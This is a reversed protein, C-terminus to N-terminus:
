GPFKYVLWLTYTNKYWDLYDVTEPGLGTDETMFLNKLNHNISDASHNKSQTRKQYAHTAPSTDYTASFAALFGFVLLINCVVKRPM